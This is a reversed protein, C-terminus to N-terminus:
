KCCVEGFDFNAPALKLLRYALCEEPCGDDTASLPCSRCCADVEAFVAKILGCDSPCGDILACIDAVAHKVM